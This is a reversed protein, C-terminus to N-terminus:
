NIIRNINNIKMFEVVKLHAELETDYTGLYNQKKNHWIFALWRNYKNKTTGFLQNKNYRKISNQHNSILRLNEIRNDLRNDNIHDVVYGNTSNPKHNLFAIAVLQQATYVNYKNESKWNLTYQLYGEKSISGNIIKCKGNKISMLNGQNSIKYRGEYGKVDKWIKNM